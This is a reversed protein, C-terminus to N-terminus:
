QEIQCICKQSGVGREIHGEGDSEDTSVEGTGGCYECESLKKLFIETNKEMSNTPKIM